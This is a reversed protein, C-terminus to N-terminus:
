RNEINKVSDRVILSYPLICRQPLRADSLFSDIVNAAIEALGVHDQTITTQPTTAYCSFLKHESTVLSIDDPVHQLCYSISPKGHIMNLPKPFSYDQLRTGSGGCLIVLKM